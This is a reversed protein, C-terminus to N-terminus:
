LRPRYSREEQEPMDPMSPNWHLNNSHRVVFNADFVFREGQSAAWKAWAQLVQTQAMGFGFKKKTWLWRSVAFNSDSIHLKSPDKGYHRYLYSFYYAPWSILKEAFSSDQCAITPGYVGVISRERLLHRCACSLWNKNVPMSNGTTFVICGGLTEEMGVNLSKSINWGESDTIIARVNHDKAIQVTKDHSCCDVVILEPEGVGEQRSLSELLGELVKGDNKTQIVVSVLRQSQSSGM